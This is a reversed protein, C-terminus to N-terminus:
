VKADKRAQKTAFYIVNNNQGGLLKDPAIMFDYNRSATDTDTFFYMYIVDSDKVAYLYSDLETAFLMYTNEDSEAYEEGSMVTVTYGASELTQKAEDPTISKLLGCGSLAFVAASLLFVTVLFLSVTKKM